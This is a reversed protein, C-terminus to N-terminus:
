KATNATRAAIEDRCPPFAEIPAWGFIVWGHENDNGPVPIAGAPGHPDLFAPNDGYLYEAALRPAFDYDVIKDTVQTVTEKNALTGGERDDGWRAQDVAEAFDHTLDGNTYTDWYDIFTRATGATNARPAYPDTNEPM